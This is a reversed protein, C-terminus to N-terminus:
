QEKGEKEEDSKVSDSFHDSCHEKRFHSSRFYEKRNKIFEAREEPTMKMWKERMPSSSYVHSMSSHHWIRDGHWAGSFLIKSLILIGGAQWFNIKVLGFIGPLLANWLLMVVTTFLALVFLGLVIKFGKTKM